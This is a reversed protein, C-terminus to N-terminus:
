NLKHQDVANAHRWIERLEQVPRLCQLSNDDVQKGLLLMSSVRAARGDLALSLSCSYFGARSPRTKKSSPRSNGALHRQRSLEARTEFWSKLYLWVTGTFIRQAADSRRCAAGSLVMPSHEPTLCVHLTLGNFGSIRQSPPRTQTLMNTPLGSNAVASSVRAGTRRCPDRENAVPVDSNCSRTVVMPCCGSTSCAHHILCDDFEQICPPFQQACFRLRTQTLMNTPQAVCVLFLLSLWRICSLYARM